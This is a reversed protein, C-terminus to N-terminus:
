ARSEPRHIRDHPQDGRALDAVADFQGAVDDRTRGAGRRQQPGADLQGRAVRAAARLGADPRDPDLVVEAGVISMASGSVGSVRALTWLAVPAASVAALAASRVPEPMGCADDLREGVDGGRHDVVQQVAGVGRQRQVVEGGEVVVRVAVADLDGHEAQQDGAAGPAGVAPGVEAAAAAMSRMSSRM